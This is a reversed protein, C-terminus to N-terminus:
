GGAGRNARSRAGGGVRAAFEEVAIVAGTAGDDDRAHHVVPRRKPFPAEIIERRLEAGALDIHLDAAARAVIVFGVAVFETALHDEGLEDLLHAPRAVLLSM